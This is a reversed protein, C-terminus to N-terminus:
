SVFKQLHEFQAMLQKVRPKRLICFEIPIESQASTDPNSLRVPIDVTLM